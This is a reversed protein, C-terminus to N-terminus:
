SVKEMWDARIPGTYGYAESDSDSPLWEVWVEDRQAINCYGVMTVLALAPCDGLAQSNRRVLDGVKINNQRM